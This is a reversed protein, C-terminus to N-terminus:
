TKRADRRCRSRWPCEACERSDPRFDRAPLRDEPKGERLLRALPEMRRGTAQNLRSAHAPTLGETGTTLNGTNLVAIIAPRSRDVTGPFSNQQHFASRAAMRSESGPSRRERDLAVHLTITTRMGGTIRPHSGLADALGSIEVETHFRRSAFNVLHRSRRVPSLAWGSRELERLAMPELANVAELERARRNTVPDTHEEGLAAYWIARRCSDIAQSDIHLRRSGGPESGFSTTRRDPYALPQM